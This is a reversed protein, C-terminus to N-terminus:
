SCTISPSVNFPRFLIPRCTISPSLSIPRFLIPRFNAVHSRLHYVLPDLCFLDLTLQMHDFSIFQLTQASYAQLQSCTISPSLSFPRILIPRFNAVHSRLLYVLPDLCFLGLTLQMQNCSIFQLTQVSYAYLQRCTISPSLSFPRFLIPRFNAVHSRLLYVLPDLCFLGLTLQMQLLYVLPDLCFLRLTLQMHDFFIFQFTYVSYAQLQSCTISPSLSFPRFLIPRFNAVHSRLLYVFPNLCFLDLALQMHDFFIFQFTYVSYAQLQSCTISPSLSFPRFLIPRFNAVHSRLLYVFSNLCFLDLALQMHDFSIFQLTYASYTQLQSCTISPSLSFPRFLVFRFNAVHSQLLYVLPDLCFIGLTLQM